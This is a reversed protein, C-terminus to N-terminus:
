GGYVIDTINHDLWARAMDKQKENGNTDFVLKM